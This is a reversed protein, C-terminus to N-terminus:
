PSLIAFENVTRYRPAAAVDLVVKYVAGAAVCVSTVDNTTVFVVEVSAVYVIVM